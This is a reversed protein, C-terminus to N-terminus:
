QVMKSDEVFKLLRRECEKSVQDRGEVSFESVVMGDMGSYSRRTQTGGTTYARIGNHLRPLPLYPM